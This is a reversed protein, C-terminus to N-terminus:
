ILNQQHMQQMISDMISADAAVDAYNYNQYIKAASELEKFTLESGDKFEISEIRHLIKGQQEIIVKSDANDLSQLILDKGQWSIFLDSVNHNTFSLQDSGGTQDYIKVEGFEKGIFYEDSGMGGEIKGSGNIYIKDNNAGTNVQVNDGNVVVADQTASTKVISDDEAVIFQKGNLIGKRVHEGAETYTINKGPQYDGYFAAMAHDIVTDDFVLDDVKHGDTDDYFDTVTVSTDAGTVTLDAGDRGFTYDSSSTGTFDVKNTDKGDPNTEIITDHGSGAGEIYTDSGAGGSLTDNGAGGNIINNGDTGNIIDDGSTGLNAIDILATDLDDWGELYTGKTRDSIEHFVKATDWGELAIANIPIYEIANAKEGDLEVKKSHSLAYVDELKGLDDGPEDGFLWIQKTYEEGPRWSFENLAKILSTAVNETGGGKEFVDNVANIAQQPTNANTTVWDLKNNTYTMIGIHTDLNENNGNTFLKEIMKEINAKVTDIDDQMSGTVDIVFVIDKGPKDAKFNDEPPTDSGPQNGNNNGNNNGNGSEPPEPVPEPTVVVASSSGWPGGEHITASSYISSANNIDYYSNITFDPTTSNEDMYIYMKNQYDNYLGPNSDVCVVKYPKVPRGFGDYFKIYTDASHASDHTSISFPEDRVGNVSSFSTGSGYYTTGNNAPHWMCGSVVRELIYEPRTNTVGLIPKDGVLYIGKSDNVYLGAVASSNM